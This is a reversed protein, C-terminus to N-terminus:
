YIRNLHGIFDPMKKLNTLVIHLFEPLIMFDNKEATIILTEIRIEKHEKANM